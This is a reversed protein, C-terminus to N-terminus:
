QATVTDVALLVAACGGVVFLFVAVIGLILLTRSKKRAPPFPPPAYPPKPTSM